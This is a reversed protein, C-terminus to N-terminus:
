RIRVRLLITEDLKDAPLFRGEADRARLQSNAIVFADAGSLAATTPLNFAPHRSALVRVSTAREGAPDVAVRILRPYGVGNQLGVLDDGDRYLGDIGGLSAGKAARLRRRAGGELEVRWIGLADAVYLAREAADLVLGNPYIMSGAPVIM